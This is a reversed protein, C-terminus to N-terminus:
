KKYFYCERKFGLYLYKFNDFINIDFNELLFMFSTLNVFILVIEDM